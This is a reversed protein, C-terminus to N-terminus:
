ETLIASFSLGSSITFIGEAKEEPSEGEKYEGEAIYYDNQTGLIKGWFRVSKLAEREGLRRLALQLRFTEESRVSHSDSFVFSRHLFWLVFRSFGVGCQELYFFNEVLNPMTFENIPTEIPNGDEDV